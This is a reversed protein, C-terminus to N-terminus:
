SEIVILGRFPRALIAPKRQNTTPMEPPKAWPNMSGLIYAAPFAAAVAAFTTALGPSTRRPTTASSTSEVTKM